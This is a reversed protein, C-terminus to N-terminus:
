FIGPFFLWVCMTVIMVAVIAIVIKTWIKYNKLQKSLSVTNRANRITNQIKLFANGNKVVYDYAGHKMTNVAVEAKDQGSVMIVVTEPNAKKIEQLVEIGNRDEPYKSNLLYDLVVIDPHNHLKKVCEEGRSFTIIRIASKLKQQLHHELPRLFMLDDDVIYLLLNDNTEM